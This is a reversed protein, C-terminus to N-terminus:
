VGHLGCLVKFLAFESIIILWQGLGSITTKLKGRITDSNTPGLPINHDPLHHQRKRNAHPLTYLPQWASWCIYHRSLLKYGGGQVQWCDAKEPPAGQREQVIRIKLRARSKAAYVHRSPVKMKAIALLFWSSYQSVHWKRRFHYVLPIPCSTDLWNRTDLILQLSFCLLLSLISISDNSTCISLHMPDLSSAIDKKGKGEALSKKWANWHNFKIIVSEM